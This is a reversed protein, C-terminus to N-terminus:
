FKGTVAIYAGELSAESEWSGEDVDLSLRRLGGQIGVDVFPILDVELHVYAEADLLNNDEFAIGNGRVGLALGTFPLDFRVHAYLMPIIQDVDVRETIGSATEEASFFGDLQRATLGLDVSAWNDLVEYYLTGDLMNLDLEADVEGNITIFGDLTGSASDSSGMWTLPTSRLQVNPVLPVAHELAVLVSTSDGEDDSFETSIDFANISQGISGGLEPRWLHASGHLDFLVGAASTNPMLVASMSVATVLLTNPLSKINKCHVYMKNTISCLTNLM